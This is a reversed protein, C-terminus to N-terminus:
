GEFPLNLVPKYIKMSSKLYLKTIGIKKKFTFNNLTAFGSEGESSSELIDLPFSSREEYMELTVGHADKSLLNEVM